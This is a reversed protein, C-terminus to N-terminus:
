RVNYGLPAITPVVVLVSHKDVGIFDDRKSTCAIKSHHTAGITNLQLICNVRANPNEVCTPQSNAQDSIFHLQVTGPAKSWIKGVVIFEVANFNSRVAVTVRM